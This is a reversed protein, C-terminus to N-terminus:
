VNQVNKGGYLAIIKEANRVISFKNMVHLSVGKVRTPLFRWDERTDNALLLLENKAPVDILDDRDLSTFIYPCPLPAIYNGSEFFGNMMHAAVSFAYDNRYAGKPFDYLFRYYDYTDRVHEVVGFFTEAEESKRFYIATAWYLAIGAADVRRESDGPPTHTLLRIDRNMMLNHRSGWCLSLTRDMILYDCDVVITENFPSMDYASVRGGNKWTITHTTSKTDLIKREGTGIVLPKTEIIRDFAQSILEEKQISYLYKLAGSDTVLVVKSGPMNSKIMLANCLAILCYDILDNNHAFILFGKSAM